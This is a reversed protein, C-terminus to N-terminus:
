LSNSLRLIMVGGMGRSPWSRGGVFFDRSAAAASMLRPDRRLV